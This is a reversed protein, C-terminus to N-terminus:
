HYWCRAGCWVWSQWKWGGIACYLLMYIIFFKWEVDGYYIYAISISCKRCLFFTFLCVDDGHQKRKHGRLGKKNKYISDCKTCTFCDASNCIQRHYNYNGEYNSVMSCKDCNWEQFCTIHSSCSLFRFIYLIIMRIMIMMMLIVMLVIMMMIM